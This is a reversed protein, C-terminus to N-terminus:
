NTLSNILMKTVSNCSQQVFLKISNNFNVWSNVVEVIVSEGLDQAGPATTLYQPGVLQLPLRQIAVM